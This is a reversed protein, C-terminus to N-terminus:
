APYHASFIQLSKDSEHTRYRLAHAYIIHLFLILSVLNIYYRLAAAADPVVDVYLRHHQPSPLADLERRPELILTWKVGTM